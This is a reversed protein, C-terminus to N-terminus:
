CFWGNLRRQGHYQLGDPHCGGSKTLTTFLTDAGFSIGAVNTAVLRYHFAANQALGSLAANVNASGSVIGLLNTVSSSGYSATPGYQFWYLTPGNSPNVSGNMQATTSTIKSAATSTALPTTTPVTTGSVNVNDIAYGQGSGAGYYNISWVLWLANSPAWPTALAMSNTAMNIQNAPQTGDVALTGTPNTPFSFAMGPVTIANPLDQPTLNTTDPQSLLVFNTGTADVAYSLSMTRTGTNNRWLEGIFSLNIYNYTNTSNNILKMGFATSGTTGTSILGLSRNTGVLGGEVDNDGFDIDGGTSQDGDQAGFRTIGDVGDASNTDACGYWGPMASGLGLGGLYSNGIVPYAFDFPNALSYFVGNLPGIDKPNNISNVSAGNGTATGNKAIGATGPDPLSDFTQIYIQNSYGIFSHAPPTLVSVTVISSTQFALLTASLM